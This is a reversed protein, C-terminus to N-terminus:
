ERAGAIDNQVRKAAGARCQKSRPLLAALEHPDLKVRAVTLDRPMTEAIPRRSRRSAREM